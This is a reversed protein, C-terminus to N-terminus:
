HGRGKFDLFSVWFARSEKGNMISMGGWESYSGRRLAAGSEDGM